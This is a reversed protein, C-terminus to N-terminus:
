KTLMKSLDLRLPLTEAYIKERYITYYINRRVTTANHDDPINAELGDAVAKFEVDPHLYGLRAIASGVYPMLNDSLEIKFVTNTPM